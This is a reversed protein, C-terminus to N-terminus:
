NILIFLENNEVGPQTKNIKVQGNTQENQAGRRRPNIIIHCRIGNAFNAYNM